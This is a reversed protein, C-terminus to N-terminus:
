KNMRFMVKKGKIEFAQKWDQFSVEECDAAIEKGKIMDQLRGMLKRLDERSGSHSSYKAMWFGRMRVDKFIFPPAPVTIPEGTMAGYTVLTGHEKLLNFM